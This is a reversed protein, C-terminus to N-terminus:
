VEPPEKKARQKAQLMLAMLAALVHGRSGSPVGQAAYRMYSRLPVGLAQSAQGHTKYGCQRAWRRVSDGTTYKRPPASM